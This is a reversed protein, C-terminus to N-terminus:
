VGDPMKIEGSNIKDTLDKVVAQLEPTSAAPCLEFAQVGPDEVGYTRVEGEPLKGDLYDRVVDVEFRDSHLTACGVINDATECRPVIISFVKVDKGSERVAQQAGEFANDLMLFLVDAGQSIATAAAQKNLSVDNFNGTIISRYGISPDTAQVAARFAVDSETTPPIEEGGIFAVNKTKTIKAAVVGAIYAPVGERVYYVHLNPAQDSLQGNIVVFEVDPFQPAVVLGAPAFEAGVGIVLESTLALNKLVEVRPQGPAVNDVVTGQVGLEKEAAQLGEFNAQNFGGDNRPGVLAMGVTAGAEGGGPSEAGPSTSPGGGCATVLFLAVAVVVGLMHSARWSNTRM